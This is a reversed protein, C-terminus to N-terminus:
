FDIRELSHKIPTKAMSALLGEMREPFASWDNESNTGCGFLNLFKLSSTPAEFSFNYFSGELLANIDEESIPSALGILL